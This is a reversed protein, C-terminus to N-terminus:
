SVETFRVHSHTGFSLFVPLHNQAQQTTSASKRAPKKIGKLVAQSTDRGFCWGQLTSVNPLGVSATTLLNLWQGVEPRDVEPTEPLPSKGLSRLLYSVPLQGDFVARVLLSLSRSPRQNGSEWRTWSKEGVQFLEGMERQTLSLKQRLAKFEEPLLLGMHRAKTNEIIEHAEPTLVWEHIEDDWRVPIQVKVRAAVATGELNPVLVEFDHIETKM